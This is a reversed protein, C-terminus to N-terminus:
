ASWSQSWTTMLRCPQARRRIIEHAGMVERAKAAFGFAAMKPVNSIKENDLGVQVKITGFLMGTECTVSNIRDLWLKTQKLGYLMGKDLLIMRRDTLAILWTNNDMLGSTFALIQEGDFLVEPLHNLEKKTFFQDDGIEAAIRKYEANLAKKDARKFDFSM